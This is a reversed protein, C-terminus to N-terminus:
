VLASASRLPVFMRHLGLVRDELGMAKGMVQTFFAVPLDAEPGFKRRCPSQYCELNFQCLPCCTAIVDAGREKAEKLLIYALRLGAEQVTGTLTGGCCRTKLPWDVAEAGLAQMLRDMSDPQYPDEFSAYPRLVQCGYYSAVKHGELPAVVREAIRDIGVDNVLVALPHRVHVHGHYNLGAEALADAVARGLRDYEDMYRQVKSLVLYCASCPAVLCAPEPGAEQEALALNRAALAFAKLEDISVYATAGCCNWARLEELPHELTEFVALLSEEYAKGTGKLSCGPYYFYKM